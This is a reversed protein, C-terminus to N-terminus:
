ASAVWGWAEVRKDAPFYRVTAMTFPKAFTAMWKEGTADGAIALREIQNFHSVDLKIEEWLAMAESGHFNHMLVLLRIKGVKKVADGVVPSIKQYDSMHPKGNIEVVVLKGGMKTSVRVLPREPPPQFDVTGTVQESPPNKYEDPMHSINSADPLTYRSGEQLSDSPDFMSRTM